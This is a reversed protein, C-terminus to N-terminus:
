SKCGKPCRAKVYSSPMNYIKNKFFACGSGDGSILKDCEEDKNAKKQVAKNICYHERSAKLLLDSRECVLWLVETRIAEQGYGKLNRSEHPEHVQLGMM